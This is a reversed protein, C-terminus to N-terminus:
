VVRFDQIELEAKSIGNWTNLKAEFAIDLRVGQVLRAAHDGMSWGVARVTKNADRLQVSLHTGNNGMRNARGVVEVDRVCFVPAPNERGFPALKEMQKVFDGTIQALSCEADIDLTSVLDEVALRQNVVGVFASRFDDLRNLKLHMGAAMAHGGFRDLFSSCQSLADHISVGDVSRASGHAEGSDSDFRFVIAPRAFEEVLRSAVIGIVGQHWEAKGVVIARCEPQDYGKDIVMTRAEDFILKEAARRKVNEGTLFHALEVSRALDATTFLEVARSAHDMRGSANLRPGLKFGVGYSDIKEDRLSSADILANLGQFRTKKIRQLGFMTIVRNEGVLPVIDSITGLSAFALLDVLLEKFPSPLKEVGTHARAFQWAVKFAVGAGCLDTFPYPAAGPAPLRPHVIAYADPLHTADFEHHDTIILDVNLSKALRAPEVATVGCDVSVIVPPREPDAGALKQIAEANLGYGEEVRHPVYCEVTAGATTLMHYLIASATIGDVDYDGYIVIRQKDRVARALREAARVAGPLLAPDHLDALKPEFFHRAADSAQFGRQVLLRALLAPVPLDRALNDVAGANVAGHTSRLRWRYLTGAEMM